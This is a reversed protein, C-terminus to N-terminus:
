VPGNGSPDPGEDTSRSEAAKKVAQYEWVKAYKVAVGFASVLAIFLGRRGDLLGLKLVYGKLFRFLPRFLFDIWRFRYGSEYKARASIASFRNITKIHDTLDEYTYHYLPGSLTRVPGDVVVQDHPEEGVSHGLEKKFLRLKIDPYWEGHMIWRNLYFVRRPFRYGVYDGTGAEFEAQIQERLEDSVEEDADLFFVWSHTAMGRILNRQGIYGQWTHQHVRDTYQRCIELTRDASYSDLVVIEDCWTVSKLCREINREENFTMICASIKESM